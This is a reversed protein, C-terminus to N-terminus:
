TGSFNSLPLGRSSSKSLSRLSDSELQCHFVQTGFFGQMKFNRKSLIEFGM